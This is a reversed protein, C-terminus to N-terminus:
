ARAGVASASYHFDQATRIDAPTAVSLRLTRKTLFGLQQDIDISGPASVALDLFKGDIRLPMVGLQRAMKEPVAALASPAVEGLNALPLMFVWAVHVALEGDAMDNRHALAHWIEELTSGDTLDRPDPPALQAKAGLQVLWHRSLSDALRQHEAPLDVPRQGPVVGAAARLPTFTQTRREPVRGDTVVEIAGSARPVMEHTLAGMATSPRHGGWAAKEGADSGDPAILRAGRVVKVCSANLAIDQELSGEKSHRADILPFFTGCAFLYDSLRQKTGLQMVGRFWDGNDLLVEVERPTSGATPRHVPIDGDLSVGFLIQDTQLVAHNHTENESAWKASVVNVWGGKRSSLYPALAQGDNLFIGGEVIAGDRLVLRARRARSAIPKQAVRTSTM